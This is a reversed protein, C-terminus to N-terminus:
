RNRFGFTHLDINKIRKRLTLRWVLISCYRYSKDSVIVWMAGSTNECFLFVLSRSPIIREFVKSAELLEEYLMKSGNEGICAINEKYKEFSWM